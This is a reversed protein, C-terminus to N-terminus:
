DRVRLLVTLLRMEGKEEIVYYHFLERAVVHITVEEKLGAPAFIEKIRDPNAPKFRGPDNKINQEWEAVRHKYGESNFEGPVVYKHLLGALQNMPEILHEQLDKEDRFPQNFGTMSEYPNKLEAFADDRQSKTTNTFRFASMLHWFTWLAVYAREKAAHTIPKEARAVYNSIIAEVELERLKRDRVYFEKWVTAFDQTQYFRQQLGDLFLEAAKQKEGGSVAQAQSQGFLSCTLLFAASAARARSRLGVIPFSSV